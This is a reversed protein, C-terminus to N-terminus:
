AFRRSGRRRRLTMLGGVGVLALGTPEPVPALNVFSIEDLVQISDLSFTGQNGNSASGIGLRTLDIQTGAAPDGDQFADPGGDIVGFVGTGDNRVYSAYTFAPLTATANTVPNTYDVDTASNNAILFITENGSNTYAGRNGDRFVVAELVDQTSSATNHTTGPGVRILVEQTAPDLQTVPASIKFSFTLQAASSFDQLVTFRARATASSDAFNLQGDAITGQSQASNSQLTPGDFTEQYLVGASAPGACAAFALSTGLAVAAPRIFVRLNV